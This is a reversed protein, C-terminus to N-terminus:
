TEETDQSNYTSSSHDGSHMDKRILKRQIYAWSQSQQIMTLTYKKLSGGYQKEYHSCCNTDRSYTYLKFNTKKPIKRQWPPLPLILLSSNKFRHTKKMLEPIECLCVFELFCVTKLFFILYVLFCPVMFLIWCFSYIDSFYELSRMSAIHFVFYLIVINLLKLFFALMFIHVPFLVYNQFTM